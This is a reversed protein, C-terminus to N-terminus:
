GEEGVLQLIQAVCPQRDHDNATLYACVELGPKRFLNLIGGLAVAGREADAFAAASFDETSWAATKCLM